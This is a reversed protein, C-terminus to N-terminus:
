DASKVVRTYLTGDVFRWTAARHGPLLQIRETSPIGTDWETDDAGYYVRWNGNEFAVCMDDGFQRFTDHTRVGSASTLREGSARDFVKLEGREARDRGAYFLRDNTAAMSYHDHVAAGTKGYRVGTLTDDIGNTEDNVLAVAKGANLVHSRAADHPHWAHTHGFLRDSVSVSTISNIRVLAPKGGHVVVDLANEPGTGLTRGHDDIIEHEGTRHNRAFIWARGGREVVEIVFLHSGLEVRRDLSQDDLCVIGGESQGFAAVFRRDDGDKWLAFSRHSPVYRVNTILRHHENWRVDFVEGGTKPWAVVPVDNEIGHVLEIFWGKPTEILNGSGGDPGFGRFAFTGTKDRAIWTPVGAFDFAVDCVEAFGTACANTGKSIPVFRGELTDLAYRALKPSIPKGQQIATALHALLDGVSTHVNM